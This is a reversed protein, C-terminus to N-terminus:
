SGIILQPNTSFLFQTRENELKCHSNIYSEVYPIHDCKQIVQWGDWDQPQDGM